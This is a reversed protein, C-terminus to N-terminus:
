GWVEALPVLRADHRALFAPAGVGAVARAVIWVLNADAQALARFLRVGLARVPPAQREDLADLVVPHTAMAWLVSAPMQAGRGELVQRLADLVACGVRGYTTHVDWIRVTRREHVVLAHSADRGRLAQQGTARPVNGGAPAELVWLLRTFRPWAQEVIPKGFVDPVYAGLVGVLQVAAEWVSADQESPLADVGTPRAPPMRQTTRVGLRAMVLPWARHLVPYLEATREQPALIRVADALTHLARARIAASRHSLFPVCRETIQAVITQLRSAPPNPDENMADHGAADMDPAADPKEPAADDVEAAPASRRALWTALRALPDSPTPVDLRPAPSPAETRALVHMVRALVALLGDAVDDYGHFRDLADLVEDVADEVKPVAEAGLMELVQVLVWPAARAGLLSSPTRATDTPRRQLAGALQMQVAGARLEAHLGAVLRYSAAGLVYDAHHLVCSAASPYACAQAIRDLAHRATTRVVAHPHGMASLVPYLTHLLWPRFSPGLLAAAGALLALLLAENLAHLGAAREIRRAPEARPARDLRGHEVFGVDLAQGARLALHEDLDGPGDNETLGRQMTPVDDAVPGVARESRATHPALEEDRDEHWADLVNQVVTKALAHVPKRLARGDSRAMRAELESTALVAVVRQMQENAAFLCAVAFRQAGGDDLAATRHACGERVYYELSAFVHQHPLPATATASARVLLSAVAEGLAAHMSAFAAVSSPELPACQPRLVFPAADDAVDTAMGDHVALAIALASGWRAVDAPGRVHALLGRRVNSLQTAALATGCLAAISGARGASQIVQTDQVGRLAGPLVDVAWMWEDGLRALWAPADAAVLREILAHAHTVVRTRGSAVGVDLVIRLLHHLPDHTGTGGAVDRWASAVTAPLCELVLAACDILAHQAAAYDHTHRVELALLAVLVPRMTRRLWESTRLSTDTDAISTAPTDVDSATEADSDGVSADDAMRQAFDELRLARAEPEHRLPATVVDALCVVLMAGLLQLAQAVLAGSAPVRGAVLKVASSVVGPVIPSARLACAEQAAHPAAYYALTADMALRPGHVLVHTDGVIWTLSAVSALELMAQRLERPRAADLATDLGLKLVHSLAGVCARDDRAARTHQQAPYIQWEHAGEDDDMLDLSPLESTGDWEYAGPKSTQTRPQLLQMLFQAIALMSADSGHVRASLAMVGLLLLQEWEQWARVQQLPADPAAQVKDWTWVHWWDRALCSMLVFTRERVRDPVGQIGEERRLLQAVPYFLYHLLAPALDADRQADRVVEVIQDLTTAVEPALRPATTHRLLTVCLPRVRVFIRADGRPADM